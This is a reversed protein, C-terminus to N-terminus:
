KCTDSSVLVKGYLALCCKITVMSPFPKVQTLILYLGGATGLAFLSQLFRKLPTVYIHILFYSAGLGSAGVVAIANQLDRYFVSKQIRITLRTEGAQVAEQCSVLPNNATM